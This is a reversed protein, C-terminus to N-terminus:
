RDDLARPRCLAARTGRDRTIGSSRSPNTGFEMFEALVFRHIGEGISTLLVV